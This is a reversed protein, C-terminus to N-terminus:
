QARELGVRPAGTVARRQLDALVMRRAAKRLRKLQGRSMGFLEQEAQAVARALDHDIYDNM